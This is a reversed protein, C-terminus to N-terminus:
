LCMPSLKSSEVIERRFSEMYVDLERARQQAIEYFRRQEKIRIHDMERRRAEDMLEEENLTIPNDLLFDKM